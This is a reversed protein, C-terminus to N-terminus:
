NVFEFEKVSKFGPAGFYKEISGNMKVKKGLNTPNDVLNLADRVAGSPLQVPICENVSTANPNDSILLNTKTSTASGFVANTSLTMGDVSGVIYGVVWATTASGDVFVSKASAVSHPQDKTGVGTSPTEGGTGTYVNSYDSYHSGQYTVEITKNESSTINYYIGGSESDYALVNM